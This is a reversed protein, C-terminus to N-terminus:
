RLKMDTQHPEEIWGQDENLLIPRTHSNAGTMLSEETMM